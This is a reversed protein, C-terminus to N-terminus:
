RDKNLHDILPTLVTTEFEKCCVKQIIYKMKPTIDVIVENEFAPHSDCQTSQVNKTLLDIHKQMHGEIYSDVQNIIGGEKGLKRTVVFKIM